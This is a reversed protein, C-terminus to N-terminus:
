VVPDQAPAHTCATAYLRGALIMAPISHGLSRM